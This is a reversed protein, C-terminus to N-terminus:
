ATGPTNALAAATAQEATVTAVAQLEADTPKSGDTPVAITVSSTYAPAASTDGTESTATATPDTPTTATPASVTSAAPTNTAASALGGAGLTIGIGVLGAYIKRKSLFM